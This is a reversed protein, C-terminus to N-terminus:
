AKGILPWEEGPPAAPAAISVEDSTAKSSWLGRM